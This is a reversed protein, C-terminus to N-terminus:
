SKVQSMMLFIQNLSVHVFEPNTASKHLLPFGAHIASKVVKQFKVLQVQEITAGAV